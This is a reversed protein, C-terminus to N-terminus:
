RNVIRKYTCWTIAQVQYAKLGYKIAIKIYAERAEKYQTLTVKDIKATKDDYAVRLAHRDVTVQESESNAINDAFSWTKIRKPPISFEGKIIQKCEELQKKTAFYNFSPKIEEYVELFLAEVEMKNTEWKKQPSLVSIVQAVQYVSVDYTASLKECLLRADNYWNLGQKYEDATAQKMYKEIRYCQQKITLKEM